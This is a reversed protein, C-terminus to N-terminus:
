LLDLLSEENPLSAVVTSAAFRPPVAKAVNASMCLM